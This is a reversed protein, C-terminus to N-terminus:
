GEIYEHLVRELSQQDTISLRGMQVAAYPVLSRFTFRDGQVTFEQAPHGPITISGKLQGSRVPIPLRSFVMCIAELLPQRVGSLDRARRAAGELRALEEEFGSAKM